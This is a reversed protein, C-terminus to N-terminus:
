GYIEMLDLPDIYNNNDIIQYGLKERGAEIVYITTDVTVEQGVEVKPASANRYISVYGNGHDIMVAYGDDENGTISSVKGMATAIVDTGANAIFFAAPKDEVIQEENSYSATGKLPFGTPLYQKALEDAKQEELQVKENVTDSLIGIQEHLKENQASLTQKEGMLVEVQHQLSSISTNAVVAHNTLYFCYVFGCAVVGAVIYCIVKSANLSIACRKVEATAVDPVFLISYKVKKKKKKVQEM